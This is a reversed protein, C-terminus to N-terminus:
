GAWLASLLEGLKDVNTLLWRSLDRIEVSAEALRGASIAEFTKKLQQQYRNYAEDINDSSPMIQQQEQTNAPGMPSYDMEVNYSRQLSSRRAPTQPPFHMPEDQSTVSSTQATPISSAPESPAYYSFQNSLAEVAATYRQRYQLILDYPLQSPAQQRINDIAQGQPPYQQPSIQQPQQLRLTEALFAAQYQLNGGQMGQGAFSLQEPYGHAGYSPLTPPRTLSTQSSEPGSTAQIPQTFRDGPQSSM